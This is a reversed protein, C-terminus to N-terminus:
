YDEESINIDHPAGQSLRRKPTLGMNEQGPEQQM